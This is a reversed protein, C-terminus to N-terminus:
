LFNFECRLIMSMNDGFVFLFFFYIERSFGLFYLFLINEVDM